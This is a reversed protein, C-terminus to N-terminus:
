HVDKWIERKLMYVLPLLVFGLFLLVVYGITRRSNQGPEGLYSLYNVLDAAQEDYLHTDAKGNELKTLSGAQTLELWKVVYRTTEKGQADKEEVHELNKMAPSVNIKLLQERAADESDFSQERLVQQGQLDWLVHPMGVKPFTLNNWGTARSEDRYFTRLYTYLWDTGRARAIVSLDPPTVGLWEKADAKSMAVDMLDGPKAGTFILNEKLQDESLGLDAAMRNYRMSNASHCSLCYNTFLKAGRQLSAIDTPHIPAKDLVVGENAWALGSILALSLAFNKMTAFIM